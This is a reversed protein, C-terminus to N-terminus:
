KPNAMPSTKYLNALSNRGAVRCKEEQVGVIKYIRFSVGV